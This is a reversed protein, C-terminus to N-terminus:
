VTSYAACEGTPNRRTARILVGVVIGDATFEVRQVFAGQLAILKNFVTTARM